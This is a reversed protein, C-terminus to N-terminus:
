LKNFDRKDAIKKEEGNFFWKVEKSGSYISDTIFHNLLRIQSEIINELERKAVKDEKNEELVIQIKEIEFLLNKIETSNKYFCYIIAEEQLKSKNQIDSEKLKSNFVLN